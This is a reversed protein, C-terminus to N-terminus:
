WWPDTRTPGLGHAALLSNLAHLRIGAGVTVLAGGGPLPRVEELSRLADLSVLAGDTAAAATFSHGSGVVRVHTGRQRAGLVLARLADVDQPSERSAPACSM